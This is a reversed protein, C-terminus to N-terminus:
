IKFAEWSAPPNKVEGATGAWALDGTWKAQLLQKWEMDTVGLASKRIINRFRLGMRLWFQLPYEQELASIAEQLYKSFNKWDDYQRAVLTLTGKDLVLQWQQDSSM